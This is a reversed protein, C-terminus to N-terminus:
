YFVKIAKGGINNEVLNRFVDIMEDSNWMALSSGENQCSKQADNRSVPTGFLKICTNRVSVYFWDDESDCVSIQAEVTILFDHIM